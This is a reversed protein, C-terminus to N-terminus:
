QKLFIGKLCIKLTIKTSSQQGFLVPFSNFFFILLLFIFIIDRLFFKPTPPAVLIPILAAILYLGSM